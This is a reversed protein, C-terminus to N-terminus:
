IRIVKRENAATSVISLDPLQLATASINLEFKSRLFEPLVDSVEKRNSDNQFSYRVLPIYRM